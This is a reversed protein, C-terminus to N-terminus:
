QCSSDEKMLKLPTAFDSYCSNTLAKTNNVSVFWPYDSKCRNFNSSKLNNVNELYCKGNTRSLEFAEKKQTEIAEAEPLSLNCYPNKKMQDLAENFNAFCSKNVSEQNLKSFFQWPFSKHCLTEKAKGNLQIPIFCHNYNSQNIRKKEFDAIENESLKCYPEAQMVKLADNFSSHCNNDLSSHNDTQLVQFRSGAPCGKIIPAEEENLPIFCPGLKNKTMREAVVKARFDLLENENLNCYPEEQIFKVISEKEEWYQNFSVEGPAIPQALYMKVTSLEPVNNLNLRIKQVSTEEIKCNKYTTIEKLFDVNKQHAEKIKAISIRGPYLKSIEIKDLLSFAFNSRFHIKEKSISHHLDYHMVSYPDYVSFYMNENKEFKQIVFLQCDQDSFGISKCYTKANQEDIVFKRNFNQHEHELGLAHGFEHLVVFRNLIRNGIKMKALNMSHKDRTIKNHSDTGVASYDGKQDFSIIIDATQNKPISSVRDYFVFDVNAYQTWEVSYKKVQEKYNETGDSFSVIIKKGPQWVKNKTVVISSAILDPSHPLNNGKNGCSWTLAALLFLLCFNLKNM